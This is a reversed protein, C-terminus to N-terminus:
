IGKVSAFKQFHTWTSPIQLLHYCLFLDKKLTAIKNFSKSFSIFYIATTLAHNEQNKVHSMQSATHLVM